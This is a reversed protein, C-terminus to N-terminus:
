LLDNSLGGDSIFFCTVVDFDIPCNAFDCDCRNLYDYGVTKLRLFKALVEYIFYFILIYKM